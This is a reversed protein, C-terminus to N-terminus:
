NEVLCKELHEINEFSVSFGCAEPHGGFQIFHDSARGIFDLVNVGGYTRASGRAHKGDPNIYIVPKQYQETLRTAVIGSVGPELDPHYCFIFPLKLKEPNEELMKAIISENRSTRNKRETNLRNLNKALESSKDDSFELLLDLALKTEGMRGAANITPAVGWGLDRSSIRQEGIGLTKLLSRYGARYVPLSSKGIGEYGMGIRAFMRNEGRLPMMDAVTGVALLDTLEHLFRSMKPMTRIRAALLYKGGVFVDHFISKIEKDGLFTNEPSNDKEKIVALKLDEFESQLFENAEEESEFEGLFMGLRYLPKLIEFNEASGVTSDSEASSDKINLDLFYANDWEKTYSLAYASLFKLCVMVSAFKDLDPNRVPNVFACEDFVPGEDPIQHHDLVIIKAGTKILDSIAESHSSGMDLFIYLDSKSNLLDSFLSGTIGYDDGSDSVRISLGGGKEEHHKKLFTGLMATSAVGDVDKDGLVTIQKRNEIADRLFLVAREMDPILLPSEFSYFGSFSNEDLNEYDPHDLIGRLYRLPHITANKQDPYVSSTKHM